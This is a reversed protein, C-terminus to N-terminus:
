SIKGRHCYTCRGLHTSASHFLRVKCAPIQLKLLVANCGPLHLGGERELRNQLLASNTVSAPTEGRFNVELKDKKKGKSKNRGDTASEQIIVIYTAFGEYICPHASLCSTVPLLLLGSTM